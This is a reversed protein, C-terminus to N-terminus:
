AKDRRIIPKRIQVPLISIIKKSDMNLKDSKTKFIASAHVKVECKAPGNTESV